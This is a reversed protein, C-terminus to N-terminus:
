LLPLFQPDDLSERGPTLKFLVKRAAKEYLLTKRLKKISLACNLYYTVIEQNIESGREEGYPM